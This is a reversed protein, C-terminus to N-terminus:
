TLCARPLTADPAISLKAACAAGVVDLWVVEQGTRTVYLGKSAAEEASRGLAVSVDRPINLEQRRSAAMQESDLCPLIHLKSMNKGASSIEPIISINPDFNASIARDLKPCIGSQAATSQGNHVATM